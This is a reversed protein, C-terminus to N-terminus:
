ELFWSTYMTNLESKSHNPNVVHYLEGRGLGDQQKLLALFCTSVNTSSTSSSKPKTPSASFQASQQYRRTPSISRGKNCNLILKEYSSTM